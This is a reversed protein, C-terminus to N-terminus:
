VGAIDLDGSLRVVIPVNYLSSLPQLQDLFWLRQQGYSLVGGEEGSVRRMEREEEEGERRAEEVARAVEAVRGGEFMRKIGVEAGLRQKIRAVVQTALLSHGGLDFFNEQRGVKEVGLVEGWIRAVEEEVEGVPEEYGGREAEVGEGMRMLRKRDVKGNVTEPMEEMEVMVSPVM